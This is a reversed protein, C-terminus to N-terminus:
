IFQGLFYPLPTLCPPPSKGRAEQPERAPPSLLFLALLAWLLSPGLARGVALAGAGPDGHPRAKGLAHAVGRHM